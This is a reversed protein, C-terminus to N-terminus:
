SWVGKTYIPLGEGENLTYGCGRNCPKVTHPFQAHRIQHSNPEDNHWMTATFQVTRDENKNLDSPYRYSLSDM